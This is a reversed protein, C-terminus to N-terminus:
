KKDVGYFVEEPEEYNIYYDSYDPVPEDQVHDSAISKVAPEGMLVFGDRVMKGKEDTKYKWKFLDLHEDVDHYNWRWQGNPPRVKKGKIVGHKMFMRLFNGVTRYDMNCKAAITEQAEYHTGRMKETFFENRSLMYTYVAKASWTLEVHEGTTKSIFGACESLSQPLKYFSEMLNM